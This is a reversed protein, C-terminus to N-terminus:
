RYGRDRRGYTRPGNEPCRTAPHDERCRSCVHRYPCREGSRCGGDSNFGRCLQFGSSSPKSPAVTARETGKPRLTSVFGETVVPEYWQWFDFSGNMATRCHAVFARLVSEWTYTAAREVLDHGYKWLARPVKPDSNFHSVVLVFTSWASLFHTEDPIGALLRDFDRAKCPVEEAEREEKTKVRKAAEKRARSFYRSQDNILEPLSEPAMSFSVVKDWVAQKVYSYQVRLDELARRRPDVLSEGHQGPVPVPVLTPYAASVVTTPAPAPLAPAPAPPAPVHVVSPLQSTRRPTVSTVSDSPALSPSRQRDTPAPLRSEVMNMLASMTRQLAGLDTELSALRADNGTSRKRKHGRPDLQGEAPAESQAM